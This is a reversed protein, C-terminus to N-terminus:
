AAAWASWYFVKGSESQDTGTSFGESNSGAAGAYLSISGATNAAAAAGIDISNAAPFGRYWIAVVDGDTFNVIEVRDPIFGVEVNINSGTGTYTGTAFKASM